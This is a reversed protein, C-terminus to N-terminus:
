GGAAWNRIKGCKKCKLFVEEKSKENDSVLEWEHYCTSSDEFPLSV